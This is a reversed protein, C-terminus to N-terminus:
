SPFFMGSPHCAQHAGLYHPISSSPSLSLFSLPRLSMLFGAMLTDSSGQTRHHPKLLLVDDEFTGEGQKASNIAESCRTERHLM